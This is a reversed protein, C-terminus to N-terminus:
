FKSQLFIMFINGEGKKKYFGKVKIIVVIKNEEGM